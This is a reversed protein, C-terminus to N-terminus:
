MKSLRFLKGVFPQLPDGIFGAGASGERKARALTM